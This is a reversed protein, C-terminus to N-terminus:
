LLLDTATAQLTNWTEEIGDVVGVIEIGNAATPLCAQVAERSVGTDLAVLAKVAGTMARCGQRARASRRRPAVAGDRAVAENCRRQHEPAACALAERQRGRVRDTRVPQQQ